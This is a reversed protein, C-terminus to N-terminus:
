SVLHSYSWHGSRREQQFRTRLVSPLFVASSQYSHGALCALILTCAATIKLALTSQRYAFVVGIEPFGTALFDSQMHPEASTCSCPCLTNSVQHGPESVIHNAGLELQQVSYQCGHFPWHRHYGEMTKSAHSCPPKQIAREDHFAIIDPLQIAHSLQDVPTSIFLWLNRIAV